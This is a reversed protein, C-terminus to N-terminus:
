PWRSVIEPVLPFAFAFTAANVVGVVVMVVVMVVIVVLCLGTSVTGGAQALSSKRRTGGAADGTSGVSGRSTRKPVASRAASDLIM